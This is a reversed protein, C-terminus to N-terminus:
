LSFKRILDDLDDDSTADMEREAAEDARRQYHTRTGIWSLWGACLGVILSLAVLAYLMTDSM